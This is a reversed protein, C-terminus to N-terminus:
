HPSCYVCISFLTLQTLIKISLISIFTSHIKDGFFGQMQRGFAGSVISQRSIDNKVSLCYSPQLASWNCTQAPFTCSSGPVDRWFAWFCVLPFSQARLVCLSHLPRGSGLSSVMQVGLLMSAAISWFMNFM